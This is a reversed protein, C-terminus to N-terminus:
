YSEDLSGDKILSKEFNVVRNRGSKKAKYLAVDAFKICKWISESDDPFISTGVSLTKTFYGDPSKIKQKSFETRIKEAIKTVADKDCNYLLVLFEEGGFRIAIDSSRISNKIVKSVTRIAEDGVDHGYTDNIMKFYDIDIMLIGYRINSRLAQPAAKEVFEELFKRNYMGTLQDIRAMEKLMKMLKKSVIAPRAANIYDEVLPELKRIRESEEKSESYISIIFNLENSISYPICLYDVGEEEFLECVKEFICSDIIANIRDARCEGETVRCRCRKSAYVIKNTKSATDAEILVFDDIHFRKELLYAIRNYVDELEKDNEITKKFKYIDSLQNVTKNISILPDKDRMQNSNRLFIYVKSDIEKFVKQLKELLNNLMKAVSKTESTFGGDVRGSYDGDYAKQMVRKISYFINVYPKLFYNIIFLALVIFVFGIFANYLVTKLSAGRGETVDIVMSVVGLVEGEKANHCKLCNPKEFASAIYPISIRFLSKDATETIEKMVKGTKLVEKDIDDRAIENNLGKGFQKIVAPSRAIWISKVNEIREIQELFYSRKDMFGNVMHATLGNKVVEATLKAKQEANKFGYDRFQLLTNATILIFAVAFIALLLLSVKQRTNM